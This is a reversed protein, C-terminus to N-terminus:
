CGNWRAHSGPAHQNQDRRPLRHQRGHRPALREASVKATRGRCNRSNRIGAKRRRSPRRGGPAAKVAITRHASLNPILAPASSNAPSARTNSKSRAADSELLIPMLLHQREVRNEAQQRLVKEFLIREHAVHQDIIWLGDRGAAIIFSDHIQGLPRLDKLAALSTSAEVSPLPGHTDPVQAATAVSATESFDFRPEPPLLTRLTFVPLDEPREPIADVSRCRSSASIRSASRSIPFRCLLPPKHAGHLRPHELGPRAAVLRDRITDRVFDHVFNGHRFRVETKSPHVNM